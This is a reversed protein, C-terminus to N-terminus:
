LGSSELFKEFAIDQDYKGTIPHKGMEQIKKGLDPKEETTGGDPLSPFDIPKNGAEAESKKEAPPQSGQKMPDNDLLDLKVDAGKKQEDPLQGGLRQYFDRLQKEAPKLYDTLPKNINNSKDQFQSRLINFAISEDLGKALMAYEPKDKIEAKIQSILKDTQMQIQVRQLAKKTTTLEETLKAVQGSDAGPKEPVKVEETKTKTEEEAQPKYSELDEVTRIGKEELANHFEAKAKLQEHVTLLEKKFSELDKERKDLEIERQTKQEESM